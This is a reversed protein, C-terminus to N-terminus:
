APFRLLYLSDPWVRLISADLPLIDQKGTSGRGPIPSLALRHLESSELGLGAQGRGLEVSRKGIPLACVICSPHPFQPRGELTPPKSEGGVVGDRIVIKRAQCLM